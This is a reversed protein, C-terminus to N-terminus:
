EDWGTEYDDCVSRMFQLDDRTCGGGDCGNMACNDRQSCDHCVCDECSLEWYKKRMAM